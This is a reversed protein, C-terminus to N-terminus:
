HAIGYCRVTGSTINGSTMKIRFANAASLNAYIGGMSYRYRNTGSYYQSIGAGEVFKYNTASLPDFIEFSGAIGPTATSLLGNGSADAFLVIGPQSALGNQGSTSSGILQVSNTWSYISSTDYTSGGNTSFQIEPAAGNTAADMGIVKVLYDDYTSSLCTTFDLEASSSATHAEVLILAGSGGGGSPTAWTGDGRWFTTSSASTGSNLNTVPLNGTVGTSLPLGTANTLVGSAPTGLAPTTLTPSTLTKNTLTQTDTAGVIVGAPAAVTTGWSAGGVVIPIGSGGPYTMSGGGVSTYVGSACTITTGDCKAAGFASSSSVPLDAPVIARFTPAAASGSSPGAFFTNATQTALAATLTGATTVPSGSVTFIAPLSLGVSTVTGSGGSGPVPGGDVATGNCDYILLHNPTFPGSAMQFFLGVGLRATAKIQTPDINGTANPTLGCGITYTAAGVASNTYGSSTAIAKVTTTSAVSLPTSYVTSSTTPTTGDITYYITPSPSSDSISVTQTGPYSSARPSFTPTAATLTAIITYTASAVSSNTLGPAAAMTKITGTATVALPVSYVNSSTTPITGDTTYYIVAGSTTDALSVYQTSTYTGGTPSFTPTATLGSSGGFTYVASAVSSNLYGSAIAIAKLTTTTSISLASSYISSSSTPTTGDTTYHIVSGPTAASLTVTQTTTLGLGGGPTISPTAATPTGSGGTITFASSSVTSAPFYSVYNANDLYETWTGGGSGIDGQHQVGDVSGWGGPLANIPYTWGAGGNDFRTGDITWYDEHVCAWHVGNFDTCPKTTYESPVTHEGRQFHHFSGTSFLTTSVGTYTWHVNSNGGIDLCEHGSACGSTGRRWQAGDMDRLGNSSM